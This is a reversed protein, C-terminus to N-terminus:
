GSKAEPRAARARGLVAFGNRPAAHNAETPSCTVRDSISCQMTRAKWGATPIPCSSDSSATSSMSGTRRLRRLPPRPIPYPPQHAYAVVVLVVSLPFTIRSIASM